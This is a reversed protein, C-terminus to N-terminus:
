RPSTTRGSSVADSSATISWSTASPMSAAPTHRSHDTELGACSSATPSASRSRAGPIATVSECWSLGTTRSYWRADAAQM